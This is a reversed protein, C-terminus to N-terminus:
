LKRCPCSVILKWFFFQIAKEAATEGKVRYTFPKRYRKEPILSLFMSLRRQSIIFCNIFPEIALRITTFYLAHKKGGRVYCIWGGKDKRKMKAKEEILRDRKKARMTDIQYTTEEIFVFREVDM